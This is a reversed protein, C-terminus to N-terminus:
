GRAMAPNGAFPMPASALRLTPNAAAEQQLKANSIAQAIQVLRQGALNKNWDTLIASSISARRIKLSIGYDDVTEVVGLTDDTGAPALKEMAAHASKGNEYFLTIPQAHDRLFVVVTHPDAM